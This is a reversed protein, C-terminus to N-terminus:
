SGTTMDLVKVKLAMWGEEWLGKGRSRGRRHVQPQCGPDQLSNGRESRQSISRYCISVLSEFLLLSSWLWAAKWTSFDCGGVLGPVRHPLPPSGPPLSTQHSSAASGNRRPSKGPWSVSASNKKAPGDILQCRPNEQASIKDKKCPLSNRRVILSNLEKDGCAEFGHSLLLMTPERHCMSDLPITSIKWPWAGGFRQWTANCKISM